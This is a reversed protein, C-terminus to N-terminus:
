VVGLDQPARHAWAAAKRAGERLRTRVRIMEDCLLQIGRRLTKLNDKVTFLYDAGRDLLHRALKRRPCTASSASLMPRDAAM